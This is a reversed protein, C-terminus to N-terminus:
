NFKINTNFRLDSIKCHIFGSQLRTGKKLIKKENEDTLVQEISSNNKKKAILYNQQKIITSVYPKCKSDNKFITNGYSRVSSIKPETNPNDIDCMLLPIFLPVGNDIDKEEIDKTVIGVMDEDLNFAVSIGTIM